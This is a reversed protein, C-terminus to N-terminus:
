DNRSCLDLQCRFGHEVHRGGANGLCGVGSAVPPLHFAIFRPFVDDANAAISFGDPLLEPHVSFYGLMAFGAFGLTVGVVVGIGLQLAMARRAAAADKTAMFRQVSVQDGGLTAVFWVTMSVISGFVTVREGPDLSFIPQRDWGPQWETPFWGFGDLDVTVLVIVLVAGGYLLITQMLDTVVVARLGGLAAYTLSVLGVLVVILPIWSEDIDVIFSFARAAAYVLLSMWVLRLMLFMTAGLLRVSVGLRNELLEYASTVRQRMYVPLMLFGVLFFTIPYGIYNALYMPGKGLMEGPLSLYTITSLLSAFLSVGILAPNMQGSGTFYERTSRQKRGFRWGLWLTLCAYSAIILWDIPLLGKSPVDNLNPRSPVWKSSFM